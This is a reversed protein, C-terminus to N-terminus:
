KIEMEFNKMEIDFNDSLPEIVVKIAKEPDLAKTCIIGDKSAGAAVEDITPYEAEYNYGPEFQKGDQIVKAQDSYISVEDKSDNKVTIYIRTESEAFEVKSVTFTVGHQESSKDVEKTSVTPAVVDIYNSKEIKEASIELAQVEGGFANEGEFTGEIKGDVIVYDDENIKEDTDMYAIFMQDQNKVDHWVQIGLTDGDRQADLIQGTIKIYKGKYSDPDKIVKNIESDKVYEKKDSEGGSSECSTFAFILVLSLLATLIVKRKMGVDDKRGKQIHKEKYYVM